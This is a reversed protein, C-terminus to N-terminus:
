KRLLESVIGVYGKFAKKMEGVEIYENTTHALCELSPGFGIIQCKKDPYLERYKVVASGDTCFSYAGIEVPIEVKMLGEKAKIVVEDGEDTKWAPAFKNQKIKVGTYTMCEDTAYEVVPTKLSPYLRQGHEIVNAMNDKVIKIISEETDGPLTRVDYTLEVENPVTSNGGRGDVGGGGGLPIKIDTPVINRKGLLGVAESRYWVHFSEIIFAVQEIPNVTTRGVSAHKGYGFISILIEGRGRQAINLRCESAEGIIVYDPQIKKIAELFCVGEFLEEVVTGVIYVEGDFENGDLEKVLKLAHFMTAFAGKMDSAGRGYLKQDKIAASYPKIEEDWKAPDANVTDLHGTLVIKKGKGTGLKIKGIFNGMKDFYADDFNLKVAERICREVVTKEQGSLSKLQILKQAFHLVNSFDYNKISQLLQM